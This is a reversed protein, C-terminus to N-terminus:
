KKSKNLIHNVATYFEKAMADWSFRSAWQVAKKSMENRTKDNKLIFCVKDAFKRINGNEILFGTKGEQISSKLGEVNYGIAPLGAANAEIVSIGWGEKESTIVFVDSKAFIKPKDDESVYGLFKVSDGLNLEQVMKKLRFEDDGKGAILLQSEPLVGSIIKFAQIIHDIRKYKKIRGIYLIVPVKLKQKKIKQNLFKFDIGNYSVIVTKFAALALLDKKTSESVAIIPVETYYRLFHREVLYVYLATPYPLQNFLSKGHIHHNIAIIPVNKIYRSVALPIKSIDDIILDYKNKSLVKEWYKKFSVNFLFRNSIRYITYDPLEEKASSGKFNSSIFDIKWSSPKRKLIEHIHVEAGGAEPNYIDRWNIVLVKM